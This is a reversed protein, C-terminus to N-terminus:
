SLTRIIFEWRKVAGIGVLKVCVGFIFAAQM